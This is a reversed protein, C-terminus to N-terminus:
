NAKEIEVYYAGRVKEGETIWTQLLAPGAPLEISLIIEEQGADVTVKQELEGVKVRAEAAAFKYKVGTPRVRLSLEYKGAQKM